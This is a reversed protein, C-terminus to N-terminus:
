EHENVIRQLQEKGFFYLLKSYPDHHLPAINLLILSAITEIKRWSYNNASAYEKLTKQCDILSKKQYVDFTITSGKMRIEYHEDRIIKHNIWLGHLLKGLDYYIDGFLTTNGYSSRWDLLCYGTDTKLINEFHLDGHYNCPLAEFISDWNVENLIDELKPYVSGNIKTNRDFYGYEENFFNIRDFTKDFYFNKTESKFLTEDSKNLKMPKWLNDECWLLLDEFIENPSLLDAVLDGQVYKYLFFNDSKKLVKPVVKKLKKSREFKQSIVENNIDFKIVNDNIFYIEETTKDLNKFGGFATKASNIGDISGIDMWDSSLHYNTEGGIKQIFYDSEGIEVSMNELFTIFKKYNKIYAVGTYTYVNLLKNQTKDHLASIIGKKEDISATRYNRSDIMNSSLIITDKDFNPIKKTFIADNTHFYFPKDIIKHTKSLTYGLGSGPGEFNDIDVYTFNTHPHSMELYQRLLNGKHGLCIIFEYDNPYLEIIHSIVAKGNIQILAKNIHETLSGLRSGVGASPILVQKISSTM